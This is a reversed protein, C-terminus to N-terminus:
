PAETMDQLMHVALVPVRSRRIVQETVSGLLVREIGSRGHTGMVILDAEREGAQPIVQEPPGDAVVARGHAFEGALRELEVRAQKRTAALAKEADQPGLVAVVPKVNLAHLVTVEADLARSLEKAWVIAADAVPSFDTPVLIKRVRVPANKTPKMKGEKDRDHGVDHPAPPMAM